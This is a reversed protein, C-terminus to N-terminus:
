QNFQKRAEIADNLRARKMHEKSGKLFCCYLRARKVDEKSERVVEREVNYM